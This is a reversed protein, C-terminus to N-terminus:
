VVVDLVLKGKTRHSKMAKMLEQVSETTLEFKREDILVKVTKEELMKKIAELDGSAESDTLFVRYTPGGFNSWFKRNIIGGLMSVKVVPSDGVITAFHGGKKLGRQAAHWSEIGGVCDFVLDLEKEAMSGVVDQERYNIVEDAGLETVM